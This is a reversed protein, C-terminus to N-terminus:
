MLVIFIYYNFYFLITYNNYYYCIVYINTILNKKKKKIRNAAQAMWKSVASSIDIDPLLEIKKNKRIADTFLIIKILILLM